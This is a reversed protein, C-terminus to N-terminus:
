DCVCGVTNCAIKSQASLGYRYKVFDLCFCFKRIEVSHWNWYELLVLLNRTIEKENRLAKNLRFQYLSVRWVIVLHDVGSSVLSEGDCDIM